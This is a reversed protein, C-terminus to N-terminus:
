LENINCLMFFARDFAEKIITGKAKREWWRQWLVYYLQKLIQWHPETNMAWSSVSYVNFLHLKILWLRGKMIPRECKNQSCRNIERLLSYCTNSIKQLSIYGTLSFTSLFEHYRKEQRRPDWCLSTDIHFYLYPTNQSQWLLSKTLLSVCLFIIKVAKPLSHKSIINSTHACVCM